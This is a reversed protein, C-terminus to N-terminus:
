PYLVVSGWTNYRKLSEVQKEYIKSWYEKEIRKCVTEAATEMDCHLFYCAEFFYELWHSTIEGEPIPNGWGLTAQAGREFAAQALNGYHEDYCASECSAFIILKAQFDKRIWEISRSFCESGGYAKATLATMRPAYEMNVDPCFVRGPSGHTSIVAVSAEPLASVLAEVSNNLYEGADYNMRWLWPLSWAADKRTNIM